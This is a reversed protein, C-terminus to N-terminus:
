SPNVPRMSHNLRSIAEVHSPGTRTSGTDLAIGLGRWALEIAQALPETIHSQPAKPSSVSISQRCQISWGFVTTLSLSRM